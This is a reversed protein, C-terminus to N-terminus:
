IIVLQTTEFVFLSSVSFQPRGVRCVSESERLGSGCHFSSAHLIYLTFCTRMECLDSVRKMYVLFNGQCMVINPEDLNQLDPDLGTETGTHLARIYFALRFSYGKRRIVCFM